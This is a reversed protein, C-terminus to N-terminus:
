MRPLPNEVLYRNVSIALEEIRLGLKRFSGEWLKIQAAPYRNDRSSFMPSGLWSMGEDNGWATGHALANRLKYKEKIKNKVGNWEKSLNEDKVLRAFTSDVLEIRTNVNSISNLINGVLWSQDFSARLMTGHFACVVLREFLGTLHHEVEQWATIGRGVAEYYESHPLDSPDLMEEPSGDYRAEFAYRTDGASTSSAAVECGPRCEAAAPNAVRNFSKLRSESAGLAEM